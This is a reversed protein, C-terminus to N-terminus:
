PRIINQTLQWEMLAQERRRKLEDRIAINHLGSAIIDNSSVMSVVKYAQRLYDGQPYLNNNFSNVGHVAAKSVLIIQELQYPKRWVDIADFLQLLVKPALQHVMYILSHYKAVLKALECLLNPIRLRQCFDEILQISTFGHGTQSPLRGLSTLVKSFNYCLASFRVEVLPSLRAIAELTLMTHAGANTHLDVDIDQHLKVSMSVGFLAEIEPFLAMLANCEHLVQFYVHPHQSQLAKKTEQWVREATLSSLESSSGIYRMLELTEEAIIFGLHAFRAAFRAVRLVRLPDEIFANSVHRLIRAKLDAVGHYPDILVGDSSRAIANITLDRRLLDEELTINPKVCCSFGTYGHGSKRETRALAYEERTDPHLFVPFDKGVQRYGISLLESATAGVVVWDHDLVPINLLYDRVAGGVLYIKM